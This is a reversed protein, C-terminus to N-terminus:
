EVADGDAKKRKASRKDSELGRKVLTRLADARSPIERRARRWNDIEEVDPDTFRGQIAQSMAHRTKIFHMTAPYFSSVGAIDMHQLPQVLQTVATVNKYRRQVV